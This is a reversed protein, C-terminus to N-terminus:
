SVSARGTFEEIKITITNGGANLIIFETGGQKEGFSNFTLTTTSSSISVGNPFERTEVPFVGGPDSATDYTYAGLIFTISADQDRSMALEQTYQIDGQVTDGALSVDMGSTDFMPIAVATMIGLVLIVSILEILTFGKNNKLFNM